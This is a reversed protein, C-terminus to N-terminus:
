SPLWLEWINLGYYQLERCIQELWNPKKINTVGLCLSVWLSAPNLGHLKLYWFTAAKFIGTKEQQFASDNLFKCIIWPKVKNAIVAEKTATIAKKFPTHCHTVTAIFYFLIFIFTTWPKPMTMWFSLFALIRYHYNILVISILRHQETHFTEQLPPNWESEEHVHPNDTRAGLRRRM